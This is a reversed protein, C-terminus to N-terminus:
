NQRYIATYTAYRVKAGIFFSSVFRSFFFYDGQCGVAQCTPILTLKGELHTKMEQNAYESNECLALCFFCVFM